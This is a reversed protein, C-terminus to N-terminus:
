TLGLKQMVAAAAELGGDQFVAGILAEVLDAVPKNGMQAENGGYVYKHIGVARGVRSLNQNRWVLDCRLAIDGVKMETNQCHTRLLVLGLVKDGILALRRTSETSIVRARGNTKWSPLAKVLNQLDAFTHGLISQLDTIPPSVWDERKKAAKKTAPASSTLSENSVYKGLAKLWPEKPAITSNEVERPFKLFDLASHEGSGRHDRIMDREFLPVAGAFSKPYGERPLLEHNASPTRQGAEADRNAINSEVANSHQRAVDKLIEIVAAAGIKFAPSNSEPVTPKVTCGSSVASVETGETIAAKRQETRFKVKMWRRWGLFVPVSSDLEKGKTETDNPVDRLSIQPAITVLGRQSINQVQVGTTEGPDQVCQRKAYLRAAGARTLGM